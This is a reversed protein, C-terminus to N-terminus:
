YRDHYRAALYAGVDPGAPNALVHELWARREFDLVGLEWVCGIAPKGHPRLATPDGLPASYLKEHLENEGYWWNLLVFAFDAAQHIVVLGLGYTSEAEEGRPLEREALSRAAAILPAEPTEGVATIGYVKALWEGTDLLELFRVPRPRHPGRLTVTREMAALVGAVPARRL